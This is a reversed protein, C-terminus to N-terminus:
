AQNEMRGDLVGFVARAARESANAEAKGPELKRRVDRFEALMAARAASEPLLRELEGAVREASFEQQVLEVVVDHEAILNVM